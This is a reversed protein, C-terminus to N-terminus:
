SPSGVPQCILISTGDDISHDLQLASMAALKPTWFTVILTIDSQKCLISFGALKDLRIIAKVM